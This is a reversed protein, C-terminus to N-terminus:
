SDESNPDKISFSAHLNVLFIQVNKGPRREMSWSLVKQIRYLKLHDTKKGSLLPYLYAGIPVLMKLNFKQELNSRKKQNIIERLKGQILNQLLVDLYKRIQGESPLHVM